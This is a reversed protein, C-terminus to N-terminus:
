YRDGYGWRTPLLKAIATTIGGGLILFAFFIYAAWWGFILWWWFSWGRWWRLYGKRGLLMIGLVGLGGWLIPLMAEM